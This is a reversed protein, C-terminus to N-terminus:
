FQRDFFLKWKGSVRGVSCLNCDNSKLPEPFFAHYRFSPLYSSIIVIDVVNQSQEFVYGFIISDSLFDGYPSNQLIVSISM